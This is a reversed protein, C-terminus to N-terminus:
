IKEKKFRYDVIIVVGRMYIIEQLMDSPRLSLVIFLFEFFFFFFSLGTIPYIVRYRFMM